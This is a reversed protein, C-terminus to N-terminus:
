RRAKRGSRARSHAERCAPCPIEGRRRHRQYAADTGHPKLLSADEIRPRGGRKAYGGWVGEQGKGLERCQAKVPCGRCVLLAEAYREPDFFIDPNSDACAAYQQWNVDMKLAPKHSAQAVGKRASM